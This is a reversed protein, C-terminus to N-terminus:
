ILPDGKAIGMVKRMRSERRQSEAEANQCELAAVLREQLPDTPAPIQEAEAREAREKQEKWLWYPALILRVTIISGLVITAAQWGGVGAAIVSLSPVVNSALGLGVFGM